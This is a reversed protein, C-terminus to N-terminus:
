AIYGEKHDPQGEALKHEALRMAVRNTSVQERNALDFIDQLLTYINRVQALARAEHYGEPELEAAINHLGGANIVFDPAYLIGRERLYDGHAITVCQNNASGAVISCQLCPITADNLTGGLACPAYVECDVTYVEEPAVMYAGYQEALTYAKAPVVDTVILSAGVAHLYQCLHSAVHGSGQVAVRVGRFDDTHLAQEICAQMGLFVGMATFRAPDGSSGLELPLGAVYPTEQRVIVMDDPTLGVDEGAIYRGGLTDVFRGMARLLGESKETQPNGIIVAKGGGLSIDAVAAKYTMSKALREVDVFAERDSPYPWMRIGGVAPGRTTNHIAIFATLRSTPDDCRVVKEYGEHPIETLKM